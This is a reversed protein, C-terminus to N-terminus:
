YEFEVSISCHDSPYRVAYRGDTKRKDGKEYAVENFSCAVVLASVGENVLIDDIYEGFEPWHSPERDDM